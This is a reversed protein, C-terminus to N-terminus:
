RSLGVQLVASTSPSLEATPVSAGYSFYSHGPEDQFFFFVRGPQFFSFHECASGALVFHATRSASKPAAANAEKERPRRGAGHERPPEKEAAVAAM